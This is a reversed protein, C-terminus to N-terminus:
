VFHSLTRPSMGDPRLAKSINLKQHQKREEVRTIIINHVKFVQFLTDLVPTARSIDEEEFVGNLANNILTVIKHVDETLDEYTTKVKTIKEKATTRSRTYARLTQHQRMASM